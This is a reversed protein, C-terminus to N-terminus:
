LEDTPLSSCRVLEYLLVIIKLFNKVSYISQNDVFALVCVVAMCVIYALRSFSFM